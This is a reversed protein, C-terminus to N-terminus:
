PKGRWVGVVGRWASEPGRKKFSSPEELRGWSSSSAVTGKGEETEAEARPLGGGRSELGSASSCGALLGAGGEERCRKSGAASSAM